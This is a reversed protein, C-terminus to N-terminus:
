AVVEQAYRLADVLRDVEEVTNYFAMSARTTAPVGYFRMIPMTCHHGSRVAIGKHDLVTGMDHPHVDEMVFSVVAAKRQAEGLIRVGPVQRLRETAHRLLHQEYEAAREMGVSELYAVAAGLGIAGAINPTGAEFKQPLGAFTSREFSVTRIMDGGGQYPPMDELLAEKGYLVGVGTPGFMKHGSLCYFDCDLSQVDVRMHPTAQAGDVLVPIDHRHAIEVVERVPNVTGLANSVHVVGVLRTRESLLGELKDIELEGQETMPLVKIEIGTQERLLQWPVIDAHHEMATLVVEDGPQFRRGYSQAVLNIAETTGRVFVLEHTSPANIFRRVAERAGEYSATARESLAHVGRHINANDHRYFHDVAEIVSRPRQATAANDLYALPLGNVEQALAPFDERVREVDFGSAAQVGQSVEESIVSM